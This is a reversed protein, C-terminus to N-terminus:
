PSALPAAEIGTFAVTAHNAFWTLRDGAPNWHRGIITRRGDICVDVIDGSTIVEVAIPRDLGAVDTIVAESVTGDPQAHTTSLTVTGAQPHFALVGARAALPAPGRGGCRLAVGFSSSPGLTAPDPAVTFRLRADAPMGAHIAAQAGAAARLTVASSGGSAGGTRAGSTLAGGTPPRYRLKAPPGAVPAMEPPFRTGLTGDPHQILERFM